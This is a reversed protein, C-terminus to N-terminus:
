DIKEVSIIFQRDAESDCLDAMFFRPEVADYVKEFPKELPKGTPDAYCITKIRYKIEKGNMETPFPLHYYTRDQIKAM